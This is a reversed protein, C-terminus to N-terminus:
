ARSHQSSLENTGWEYAYRKRGNVIATIISLVIAGLIAYLVTSVIEFRGAFGGYRILFGGALAGEIGIVTDVWPGYPNGKLVRGTLWGALAGVVIWSFIYM